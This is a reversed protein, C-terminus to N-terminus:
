GGFLATVKIATQTVGYGLGLAVVIWLFIALTASGSNQAM